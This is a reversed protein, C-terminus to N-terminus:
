LVEGGVSMKLFYRGRSGSGMKKRVEESKALQPAVEKTLGFNWPITDKRHHGSIILFLM